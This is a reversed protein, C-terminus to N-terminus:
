SLQQSFRLRLFERGEEGLLGGVALTTTPPDVIATHQFLNQPNQPTTGM